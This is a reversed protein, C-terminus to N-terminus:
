RAPQVLRKASGVELPHPKKPLLRGEIRAAVKGKVAWAQAWRWAAQKGKSTGAALPVVWKSGRVHLRYTKVGKADTAVSPTGELALRVWLLSFGAKKITAEMAAYGVATGAKPLFSGTAEDIDFTFSRAGFRRVL